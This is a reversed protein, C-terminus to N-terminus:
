VGTEHLSKRYASPSLGEKKQFVKAFYSADSFNLETAIEYVPSDTYRLMHKAREIKLRTVYDTFSEGTRQKFIRSLYKTNFNFESAVMDLSLDEKFHSDIYHLIRQMINTYKPSAPEQSDLYKIVQDLCAYLNKPAIPKLLFDFVRYKIATQAYSFDNHATIIITKVEPLFRIIEKQAHLGSCQPMSIDMLIIDPLHLRAYKIAELGTSADGVFQINQYRRQIIMHLAKRELPEDECILLKYM